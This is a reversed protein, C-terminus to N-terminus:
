FYIRRCRKHHHSRRGKWNTYAVSPISTVAVVEVAIGLYVLWGM